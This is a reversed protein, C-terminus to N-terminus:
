KVEQPPATKEGGPLPAAEKAAPAVAKEEAPAPAAAKEEAAAPVTSGEVTPAVTGEAKPASEPSPPPTVEQPPPTVEQPPQAPQTTEPPQAGKDEKKEEAAGGELTIRDKNAQWFKPGIGKVKRIDAVKKFPGKKDRYAIIRKALDPTLRKLQLFDQETATNINIKAETAQQEAPAAAPAEPTAGGDQAHALTALPALICLSLVIYLISISGVARLLTKTKAM